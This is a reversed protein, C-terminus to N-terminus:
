EAAANGRYPSAFDEVYLGREEAERRAAPCPRPVGVYMYYDWGVHMFADNAELRCWFEERLLSRLVDALQEIPLADGENIPVAQGQKNELARVTLHPVASERLFAVATAVYADEVRGYSEPTLTVGDFSRGIDGFSIWEDRTYAGSSDRFVPNYKTVRYENM